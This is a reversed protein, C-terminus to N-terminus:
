SETKRLQCRDIGDSSGHEDLAQALVDSTEKQEIENGEDIWSRLLKKLTERRDATPLHQAALFTALADPSLVCGPPVPLGAQFLRALAAGKGGAYAVDTADTASFPQVYLKGHDAM